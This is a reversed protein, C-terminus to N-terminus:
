RRVEGLLALRAQTLATAVTMECSIFKPSIIRVAEQLVDRHNVDTRHIDKYWGMLTVRAEPPMPISRHDAYFQSVVLYLARLALRCSEQETQELPVTAREPQMLMLTPVSLAKPRMM